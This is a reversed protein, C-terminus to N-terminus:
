RHIQGANHQHSM